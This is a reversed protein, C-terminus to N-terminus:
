SQEMIYVTQSATSSVIWYDGADNNAIFSQGAAIEIGRTAGTSTVTSSGIFFNAASGNDPTVGLVVRTSAPASGSVTCRVATTGVTIAAQTVTKATPTAAQASVIGINNTGAPLAANVQVGNTTGPTTQDIGVKGIINTGAPTAAGTNTAITALSTNGTTQLASTSAGTPLASADVQVHLNSGTAQTAVVPWATGGATGQNATVTGSVVPTGANTTNTAITALSTNGTTQLASTSAGTPLPVTGTIQTIQTGNTLDLLISGLTTSVTSLTTQTAAGTPLVSSVVNVNQNGSADVSIDTLNGSPNSGGIATAYGPVATGTTSVSPNEASITGAVVNVELYGSADTQLPQQNGSPNEGAVLTSSTPIPSGNPSVSANSAGASSPYYAYFTTAM